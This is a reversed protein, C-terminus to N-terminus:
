RVFKKMGEVQKETLDSGYKKIIQNFAEQKNSSSKIFNVANDMLDKPANGKAAAKTPSNHPGGL